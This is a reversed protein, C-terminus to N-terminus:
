SLVEARVLLSVYWELEDGIHVTEHPKVGAEELAREFIIPNPKEVGVRHSFILPNLLDLLDSDLHYLASVASFLTLRSKTFELDVSM